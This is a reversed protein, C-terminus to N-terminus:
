KDALLAAKDIMALNRSYWEYLDSIATGVPTFAVDPVDRRLRDNAASYALGNGPAGVVVPLNKGSRTIVRAALDELDDTWDPVINYAVESHPGTLFRDVIPGLDDVYLYSFTRNQRLTIPLGLLAKCIANSVFRIAYDEHRGFVGFLRLEVADPNGIQRARELYQAIVYKSLGHEDAPLSEGLHEEAVRHLPRAVDYVAGSSLFILRGYRNANRMLGFFMRLNTWLQGTPDLVNRHGPRLAGHIVADVRHQAFWDDLAGPDSVDLEARQPALVEHSRSLYEVLNRGIFGSGGTVLVKM